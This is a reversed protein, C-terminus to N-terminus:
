RPRVELLRFRRHKAAEWLDAGAGGSLLPFLAIWLRVVFRPRVPRASRFVKSKISSMAAGTIERHQPLREYRNRPLLRFQILPFPLRSEGLLVFGFRGKQLAPKERFDNGLARNVSLPAEGEERFQSEVSVPIVTHDSYLRSPLREVPILLQRVGKILEESILRSQRTCTSFIALTAGSFLPENVHM